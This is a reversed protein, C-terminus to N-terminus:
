YAIENIRATQETTRSLTHTQAHTHTHTHTHSHTHTHTRTHTHTYHTHTYTHTDTHTHTHQQTQTSTHTHTTRTQTHTHAHRHAHRHTHRHAHRHTHTHTHQTNNHTHETHKTVCVGSEGDSPLAIPLAQTCKEFEGYQAAKLPCRGSRLPETTTDHAGLVCGAAQRNSSVIVLGKHRLGGQTQLDKVRIESCAVKANSDKCSM